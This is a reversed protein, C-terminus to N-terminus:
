LEVLQDVCSDQLAYPILLSEIQEQSYNESPLFDKEM